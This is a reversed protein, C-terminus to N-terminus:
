NEYKAAWEIAVPNGNMLSDHISKLLEDNKLYTHEEFTMSPICKNIEELFGGTSSTSIAGNRADLEDETVPSGYFTSIMEITAYGCSVHQTVLELAGAEVRVCYDEDDKLYAYDTKLGSTKVGLITFPIAVALALAVVFASVSVIVITKTKKKM